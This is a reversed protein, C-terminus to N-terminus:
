KGKVRGSPIDRVGQGTKVRGNELYRGPEFKAASNAIRKAM